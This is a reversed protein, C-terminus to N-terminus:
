IFYLELEDQTEEETSRSILKGENILDKLIEGISRRESKLYKGAVSGIAVGTGVIALIKIFRKM